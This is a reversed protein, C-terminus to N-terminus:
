RCGLLELQALVDRFDDAGASRDGYWVVEFQRTLATLAPRMASGASLLRLYERPTHARDPVWAGSEELHSVGAWYALHIAERWNSQQAATRAEALWRRWNKASPAFPIPQRTAIEGAARAARRKLWIAATACGLAIALWVLIQGAQANSPVKSFIKLLARGIWDKVKAKLVDWASPGHVQSFERRSLIDDLQRRPQSGDSKLAYAAAEERMAQLKAQIDKVMTGRQKAQTLYATLAQRLWETSPEFRRGDDSTVVLVQPVEASLRLADGPDRLAGAAESWKQLQAKYADLSLPANSSEQAHACVVTAALLAAALLTRHFKM